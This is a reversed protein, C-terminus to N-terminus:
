KPEIKLGVAQILKEINPNGAALETMDLSIAFIKQALEPSVAGEQGTILNKYINGDVTSYLCNTKKHRVIVKM